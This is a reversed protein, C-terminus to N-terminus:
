STMIFQDLNPEDSDTQQTIDVHNNVQQSHYSSHQLSTLDADSYGTSRNKYIIELLQPGGHYAIENSVNQVCFFEIEDALRVNAIGHSDKDDTYNDNFVHVATRVSGSNRFECPSFNIFKRIITRAVAALLFFKPNAAYEHALPTVKSEKRGELTTLNRM